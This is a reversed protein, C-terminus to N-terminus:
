VGCGFSGVRFGLGQVWIGLCQVRMGLGLGGSPDLFRGVGGFIFGNPLSPFIRPEM